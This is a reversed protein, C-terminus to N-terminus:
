SGRVAGPQVLSPMKNKWEESHYDLTEMDSASKLKQYYLLGAQKPKEKVSM